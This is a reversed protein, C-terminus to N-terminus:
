EEGWFWDEFRDFLWKFPDGFFEFVNDRMEQWGEWFPVLELVWSNFLAEIDLLREIWWSNLHSLINAWWNTFWLFIENLSPIKDKFSNWWAQVEALAGALNNIQVLAWQKAQEIWALVNQQATGWWNGVIQTVNNVAFQTWNWAYSAYNIWVQFYSTIAAISLIQTLKTNADSVWLSFQYFQWQLNNFTTYLYYLAPALNRFPSVWGNVVLYADWFWDTVDSLYSLISDFFSM